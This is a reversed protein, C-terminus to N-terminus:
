RGGGLRIEEAENWAALPRRDPAPYLRRNGLRGGPLLITNGGGRGRLVCRAVKVASRELREFMRHRICSRLRFDKSICKNIAIPTYSSAIPQM